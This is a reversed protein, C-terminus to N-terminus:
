VLRGQSQEASYGKWLSDVFNDELQKEEEEGFESVGVPVIVWDLNEFVRKRNLHTHAM